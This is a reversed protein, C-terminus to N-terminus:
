ELVKFSEIPYIHCALYGCIFMEKAFVRDKDESFRLLSIYEEAYKEMLRLEESSLYNNKIDMLINQTCNNTAYITKKM